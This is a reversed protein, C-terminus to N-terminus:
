FCTDNRWIPVQKQAEGVDSYRTNIGCGNRQSQTVTLRRIRQPKVHRYNAGPVIECGFNRYVIPVDGLKIAVRNERGILIVDVVVPHLM